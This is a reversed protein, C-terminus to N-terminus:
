RVVVAPPTLIGPVLAFSQKIRESLSMESDNEAWGTWSHRIVGFAILTILRAKSRLSEDDIEPEDHRVRAAVVVSLEDEFTKMASMRLTFLQPYQKLLSFRATHMGADDNAVETAVSILVGLGELATSGLAGSVYEDVIAGEPVEPPEGLLAAEKSAFYNFFTRPSVDARHSIEDVTVNELGKEMVLGLAASEIALRTAIRKRERLGQQAVDLSM